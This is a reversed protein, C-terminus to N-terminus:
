NMSAGSGGGTDFPAAERPERGHSFFQASDDFIFPHTVMSLLGLISKEEREGSTGAEKEERFNTLFANSIESMTDNLKKIVRTHPTPLKLLWPFAEALLILLMNHTQARSNGFADFIETVSTQKGDLTGFDRAFGAIGITDLSAM